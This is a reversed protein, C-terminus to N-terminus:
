AQSIAFTQRHDGKHRLREMCVLKAPTAKGCHICPLVITWQHGCVQKVLTHKGDSFTLDM